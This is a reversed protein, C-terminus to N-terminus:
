LWSRPVLLSPEPCASPSWRSVVAMSLSSRKLAPMWSRSCASFRLLLLFYLHQLTHINYKYHLSWTSFKIYNLYVCFRTKLKTPVLENLRVHCNDVHQLCYQNNSMHQCNHMQLIIIFKYRSSFSLHLVTFHMDHQTGVQTKTYKINFVVKMGVNM